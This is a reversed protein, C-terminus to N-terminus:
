FDIKSVGMLTYVDDTAEVGLMPMTTDETGGVIYIASNRLNDTDDISGNANNSRLTELSRSVLEDTTVGPAHYDSLDLSYPGCEM